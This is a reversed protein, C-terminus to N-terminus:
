LEMPSDGLPLAGPKPGPMRPNSDRRGLWSFHCLKQTRDNKMGLANRIESHWPMLPALIAQPLELKGEKRKLPPSARAFPYIDLGEEGAM